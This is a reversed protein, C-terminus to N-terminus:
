KENVINFMRQIKNADKGRISSNEYLKIIYELICRVQIAVIQSKTAENFENM